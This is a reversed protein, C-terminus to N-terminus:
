YSAWNLPSKPMNFLRHQDLVIKRLHKQVIDHTAHITEFLSEPFETLITIVDALNEIIIM